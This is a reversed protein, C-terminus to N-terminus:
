EFEIPESNILIDGYKTSVDKVKAPVRKGNVLVTGKVSAATRIVQAAKGECAASLAKLDTGAKLEVLEFGGKVQMLLYNSLRPSEQIKGKGEKVKVAERISVAEITTGNVGVGSQNLNFEWCSVEGDYTSNQYNAYVEECSLDTEAVYVGTNDVFVVTAADVQLGLGLVVVLAFLIRKFCIM